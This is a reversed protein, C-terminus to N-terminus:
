GVQQRIFRKVADVDPAMTVVRQPMALMQRQAATLPPEFGVAEKVTAAFKVPLATALVLTQGQRPMLECAVKVADATHPDILVGTRQYTERITRLRDAHTSTGAVFGFREPIAKFTPTDSIDFAGGRDVERWLAAVREADGEFLYYVFREFNSAKSIDM